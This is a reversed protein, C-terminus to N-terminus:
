QAPAAWPNYEGFSWIHEEPDRLIFGSGGYEKKALDQLIEAGAAKASDYPVRCDPVIIYISSTVARINKPEDFWHATERNQGVTGIMVMGNGLTLEAHAVVGSADRYVARATFGLVSTLWEIMKNADAYRIAPIITAPVDNSTPM